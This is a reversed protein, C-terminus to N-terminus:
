RRIKGYHEREYQIAEELTKSGYHVKSMIRNYSLGNDKCWQSLTKGERYYKIECKGRGSTLYKEVAMEPTLMQENVYRIVAYYPLNHERCYQALSIGQYFYTPLRGSVM